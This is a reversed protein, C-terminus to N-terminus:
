VYKKLKNALIVYRFISIKFTYDCGCINYLENTNLAYIYLM